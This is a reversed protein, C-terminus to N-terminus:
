VTFDIKYLNYGNALLKSELYFILKENSSLKKIYNNYIKLYIYYKKMKLFHLRKFYYKKSDLNGTILNTYCEFILNSIVFLDMDISIWKRIETSITKRITEM